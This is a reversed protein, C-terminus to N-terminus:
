KKARLSILKEIGKRNAVPDKGERSSEYVLWGDYSAADLAQALKAVDIQDEGFIPGGAPKIHIECFHQRGHRRITEYIDEKAFLNGTDYYIKLHSPFELTRLLELVRDTTVPAEIGIVVGKLKAYPLLERMFDAVGDFAVDSTQFDSPGFFPFLMRTAGLAHCADITQKAIRMAVERDKDWIQCKNLSGACLSIIQVGHHQSAQHWSEVIAPDQGIQLSLTPDIPKKRIEVPMGSHMQIAHYGAEKADQFSTVDAFKKFATEMVAIRPQTEQGFSPAIASFAASTVVLWLLLTRM